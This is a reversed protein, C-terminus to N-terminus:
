GGFIKAFVWLALVLMGGMIFLKLMCGATAFFGGLAAGAAEAAREKPDGKDSALLAIFGCIGAFVLAITLLTGM